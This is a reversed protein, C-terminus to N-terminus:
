SLKFDETHFLDHVHRIYPRESHSARARFGVAIDHRLLVELVDDVLEVEAVMHDLFQKQLVLDVPLSDELRM